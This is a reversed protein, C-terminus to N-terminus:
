HEKIFGSGSFSAILRNDGDTVSVSYHSLTKGSNIEQAKAFLWEGKPPRLYDIDAHIGVTANGRSNSAVAFAFDALTFIVGGQVIGLGNLHEEKIKMKVQAMGEAVDQIEIGLLKAFQDKKVTRIMEEEIM